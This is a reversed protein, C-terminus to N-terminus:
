FAVRGRGPVDVFRTGEPPAPVLLYGGPLHDYAYRHAAATSLVQGFAGLFKVGVEDGRPPQKLVVRRSWRIGDMDDLLVRWKTPQWSTFPQAGNVRAIREFIADYNYDSIWVPDCYGMMDRNDNPEMLVRDLLDYGWVGLRGGSYPYSPDANSTQCPAHLRGLAHGIEHVFTGPAQDGTFGVGVAGRSYRDGAGPVPGLGTVCGGSCYASFSAQPTFIGYYYTEASPSDSNRLDLIAQLIESWGGGNRAITDNWDFPARVSLDVDPVPFLKYMLNRYRELQAQSTDPLRGSGDANYRVPVLVVRIPGGTPRPDLDAAGSTPYLVGSPDPNGQGCADTEYLGVSFTADLPLDNGSVDFNFTTNPRQESSTISVRMTEELVVPPMSPADITLRAVIDRADFGGQPAVFVRVLAPRGGIVPANPSQPAGDSMLTIKVGQYIAVETMRLGSALAGGPQASDFNCWPANLGGEARVGDIDMHWSAVMSQGEAVSIVDLNLARTECTTGSLCVQAQLTRAGTSTLDTLEAYAVPVGNPGSDIIEGLATCDLDEAALILYVTDGSAGCTSGVAGYPLPHTVVGADVPTQDGTDEIAADPRWVGGDLNPTFVGADSRPTDVVNLVRGGGIRNECGATLALTGLLAATLPLRAALVSNPM